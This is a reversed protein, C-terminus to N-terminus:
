SQLVLHLFVNFVAGVQGPEDIRELPMDVYVPRVM